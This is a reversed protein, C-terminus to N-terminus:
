FGLIVVESASQTLMAPAATLSPILLSPVSPWNWPVRTTEETANFTVKFFDICTLTIVYRSLEVGMQGLQVRGGVLRRVLARQLLIEEQRLFVTYVKRIRPACSKKKKM